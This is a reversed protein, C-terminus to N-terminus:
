EDPRPQNPHYIGPDAEPLSPSPPEPDPIPDEVDVAKPKQPPLMRPTYEWLESILMGALSLHQATRTFGAARLALLHDPLRNTRLGTLIRFGLYLLRVMIRAPWHMFGAPIRFDSVLWLAGLEAHGALQQALQEVESQTLCDLFFNTVILDYHGAPAFELADAQYIRLRRAGDPVTAVSRRTLLELMASSVDVVDAHLAPNAVLLREVFRGDGDGLVLGCRCHALAPLFHFRCRELARGFSLYEMWRYPRAIPDFNVAGLRKM